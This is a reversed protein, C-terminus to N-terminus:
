DAASLRIQCSIRLQARLSAWQECCLIQPQHSAGRALAASRKASPIAWRLPPLWVPAATSAMSEIRFNFGVATTKSIEMGPPPIDTNSVILFSSWAGITIHEGIKRIFWIATPAELQTGIIEEVFRILEVFHDLHQAASAWTGGNL